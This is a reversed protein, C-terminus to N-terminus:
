PAVTTDTDMGDDTMGDDTDMGDDLGDTTSGDDLGDPALTTTTDGPVIPDDDDDACAALGGLSLAAVAGFAVIRRRLGTFDTSHPTTNIDMVYGYGIPTTM